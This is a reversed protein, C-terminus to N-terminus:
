SQTTEAYKTLAIFSPVYGLFKETWPTYSSYHQYQGSHTQKHKSAAGNSPVQIDLYHIDNNPFQDATFQM